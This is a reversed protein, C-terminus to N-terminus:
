GFLIKYKIEAVKWDELTDIDHAELDSLIIAGSNKAFLKKQLHFESTKMWYFQGSDHFAPTLDQSRKNFNEPWNMSVKGKEIKLSRQIPYSYRLVPFVSDFGKKTLMDLGEILRECRIFPATPFIVCFVDFEKGQQQYATLVEEVVESIGALDNSTALSRMFPVSAGAKKSIESIEADDTSVMIEDFLKSQLATEISYQIIPKGSFPQINKRPIRKSGGRAPIIALTKM